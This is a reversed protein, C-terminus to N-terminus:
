TKQYTLERKGSKVWEMIHIIFSTRELTQPITMLIFHKAVDQHCKSNVTKIKM